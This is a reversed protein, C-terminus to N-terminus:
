LKGDRSRTAEVFILISKRGTRLEEKAYNFANEYSEMKEKRTADDRKELYILNYGLRVLFRFFPNSIVKAGIPWIDKFVRCIIITDANSLHNSMVVYNGEEPINELGAIEVKKVFVFTLFGFIWKTIPPNIKPFVFRENKM